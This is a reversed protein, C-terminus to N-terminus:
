LPSGHIQAESHHNEPSLGPESDEWRLLPTHLPRSLHNRFSGDVQCRGKVAGGLGEQTVLKPNTLVLHHSPFPDPHGGLFCRDAPTQGHRHTRTHRCVGMCAERLVCLCVRMCEMCVYGPVCVFVRRSATGLLLLAGSARQDSSSSHALALSSSLGPHTGETAPVNSRRCGTNQRRRSWERRWVLHGLRSM